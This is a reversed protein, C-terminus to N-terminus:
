LRSDGGGAGGGGEPTCSTVTLVDGAVEVTAIPRSTIWREFAARLEDFDTPTDARFNVRVCTGGRGDDWSVYWDGAWGSAAREASARDVEDGLTERTLLEGFVGEDIMAGDAVPHPVEVPAERVLFKDPHMVQESSDPPAGFAAALQEDGGSRVIRDVLPRGLDYPAQILEILILPIGTIDVQGAFEMEERDRRAKDASTMRSEYIREIRRADGEALSRFGFSIEDKREDYEPRDLDFWQDDLAHVLEHVITQKVYPGLDIGRVVLAKTEPDYYGLVGAGLLKRMAEVVDANGPILGLAQLLRGTKELGEKDEEFQELLRGTFAADDLLEVTVETKFALGREREVFASLEDVVADLEAKTPPPVLTTRTPATSTTSTSTGGPAPTSSTAPAATSTTTSSGATANVATGDARLLLVLLTAVIGILVIIAGGAVLLGKNPQARPTREGAPPPLPAGQGYTPPVTPTPATFGEPTSPPLPPYEGPNSSWQNSM